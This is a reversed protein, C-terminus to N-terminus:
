VMKIMRYENYDILIRYFGKLKEDMTPDRIDTRICGNPLSNIKSRSCIVHIHKKQISEMIRPTIQLNGRGFVFGQRGIPSIILEVQHENVIKLIMSENVDSAVVQKNKLIDFGLLTKKQGLVDFISRVTTGPGCIYYIDPQMEEILTRAIAQQNAIEEDTFPSSQKMGQILLPVHPVKMYGFLKVDIIDNRFAEENIDVIESEILPANGQLFQKILQAGQNPNTAFVSSFVKVGGPIGLCPINQDVIELVDRATGDGGFFVILSVKEQICQKVSIQTDLKTTTFLRLEHNYIETSISQFPTNTAICADQGMIGPATVVVLGKVLSNLTNLFLEARDQIQPKAGLKRAQDLVDEGDTGKLGVAGGMGSIPNIVFGIKHHNQQM